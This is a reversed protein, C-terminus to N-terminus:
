AAKGEKTLGLPIINYNRKDYEPIAKVIKGWKDDDDGGLAKLIGSGLGLLFLKPLCNVLITKWIYTGPDEQFSEGAARWGEKNVNSFLFFNNVVQHWKGVRRTDPTGIRTRVVHAIEDQSRSTEHTLYKYGALKGTMESVRGAKDLFKLFAKM